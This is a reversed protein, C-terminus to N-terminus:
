YYSSLDAQGSLFLGFFLFVFFFLFCCLFFSSSSFLVRLGKAVAERVVVGCRRASLLEM